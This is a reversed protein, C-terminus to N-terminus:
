FFLNLGKNENTPKTSGGVGGGAGRNKKKDEVIELFDTCIPPAREQQEVALSGVPM